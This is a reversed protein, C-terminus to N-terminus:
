APPHDGIDYYRYRCSPGPDFITVCARLGVSMWPQVHMVNRVNIVAAVDHSRQLTLAQSTAKKQDRRLRKGRLFVIVFAAVARYSSAASHAGDGPVECGHRGILFLQQSEPDVPSCTGTKWSPLPAVREPAGDPEDREDPHVVELAAPPRARLSAFSRKRFAGRESFIGDDHADQTQYLL